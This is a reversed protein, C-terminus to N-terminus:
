PGAATAEQFRYYRPATGIPESYNFSGVNTALASWPASTLNTAAQLINTRGPEGLLNLQVQGHSASVVKLRKPFPTGPVTIKFQTQNNYGMLGLAGPFSTTDTALNALMVTLLYSYGARLTGGPIVVSSNTGNLAGAVGVWPSNFVDEGSSWEDVEVYVFQSTAGGLPQWQLTFDAGCNITQAAAYNAIQPTATPYDDAPLPVTVTAVGAHVTYNTLFYNGAAFQSDMAAKTSFIMEAEFGNTGGLPFSQGAPTALTATSLNTAGDEVDVLADFEYSQTQPPGSNTQVYLHGKMVYYGYLDISQFGCATFLDYGGVGVAGPYTTTNLGGPLREVTLYLVNSSGSPVWYAPVVVSTNTGNLAGPEGEDPTQWLAEGTSADDIEAQVYDASTAGTLPLWELTVDTGANFSGLTSYTGTTVQAAPPYNNGTLTFSAYIEGNHVTEIALLWTGSPYKADLVAESYPGDFYEFGTAPPMPTYTADGSLKYAATVLGQIGILSDAWVDFFYGLPTLTAPGTQGYRRYKVVGYTLVDVTQLTFATNKFVAGVGIVTPYSTTNANVKAFLLRASYVNGATLTGGPIIVGTNTGTLLGTQGSILPEPTQFVVNSLSDWVTLQIWDAATGNTFSGWQVLFDADANITQAATWNSVQPVPIANSAVQLPAAKLGDSETQMTLTYTGYPYATDLSVQSAYGATLAFGAANTPLPVTSGGPAQLTANTLGVPSCKEALAQLVFPNAAQLSPPATSTQTYVAGKMVEYFKADGATAHRALSLAALGLLAGRIQLFRNIRM